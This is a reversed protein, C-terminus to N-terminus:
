VANHLKRSVTVKEETDDHVTCLTDSGCDSGSTTVFGELYNRFSVAGNKVFRDYPSNDYTGMLVARQVDEVSPWNTNYMGCLHANPCRRLEQNSDAEPDCIPVPYTQTSPDVWCRTKWSQDKFLTGEVVSNVNEGLRDKTFPLERNSEHSWDWYPLRFNRDGIEIQIERELWLLFLRHWTPFGTGEHAFDVINQNNPDALFLNIIM